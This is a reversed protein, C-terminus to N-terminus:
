KKAELQKKILRSKVATELEQAPVNGSTAGRVGRGDRGRDNQGAMSRQSLKGPNASTGGPAPVKGSRGAWSPDEIGGAFKSITNRAEDISIRGKTYSKWVSNVFAKNKAQAKFAPRFLGRIAEWTISQMERPLVGREKAANRYAEAFLGYMGSIGLIASSPGGGLNHKVEISSGSLPRYLAAAVAHTDITSDGYKANPQLINNFFNRVKHEGGLQKHINEKSGDMLISIAKEIQSFSGWGVKSEKGNGKLKKGLIEGSPSYVDFARSNNVEDFARVFIAKDFTDAIESYRKGLLNEKAHRAFQRTAKKSRLWNLMQPTFIENSKTGHIDIVRRALSINMFWDKQPSLVAFVGAVQRTAIKYNKSLEESMKRAGDYWKKAEERLRPAFSDYLYLLNSKAHDVFEKLIGETTKSKPSFGIYNKVIDAQKKALDKDRLVTDLGITLNEKIPDETARVAKPSRQSVWFQEDKKEAPSAPAFQKQEEGGILSTFKPENKATGSFEKEMEQMKRVGAVVEPTIDVSWIPIKDPAVIRSGPNAAMSEMANKKGDASITRGDETVVYWRDNVIASKEVPSGYQKMYKGIESPLMEDYFKTMGRKGDESIGPYRDVQEAGTTWGIWEKDSEVAEVLARKFNQVPWDKRFPADPVRDQGYGRPEANAFADIRSIIARENETLDPDNRRYGLDSDYAEYDSKSPMNKSSEGIYGYKRGAQHLDSQNEQMFLGERGKIDPREDLRMHAIYGPIPYHKSMYAKDIPMDPLKADYKKALDVVEQTVIDGFEVIRDNTTIDDGSIRGYDLEDLGAASIDTLFDDADQANKFEIKYPETRKTKSDQKLSLVVERYNKGGPTTFAGFRPANGSTKGYELREARANLHESEKMMRDFTDYIKKEESPLIYKGQFKLPEDKLYKQAAEQAMMSMRTLQSPTVINDRRNQLDMMEGYAGDGMEDDMGGLPNASDATELEKLRSAEQENLPVKQGKSAGYRTEELQVKGKGALFEELKDRPVKGENESALRDIEENIGSWKIDEENVGRTQGPKIIAKVQEPTALRPM